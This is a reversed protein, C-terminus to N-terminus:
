GLLLPWFASGVKLAHGYSGCNFCSPSDRAPASVPALVAGRKDGSSGPPQTAAAREPALPLSVSRTYRPM